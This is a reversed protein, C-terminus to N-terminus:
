GGLDKETKYSATRIEFKGWELETRMKRVVKIINLQALDNHLVKLVWM